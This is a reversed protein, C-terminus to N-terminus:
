NWCLHYNYVNYRSQFWKFLPLTTMYITRFSTMQSLKSVLFVILYTFFNVDKDSRNAFFTYFRTM